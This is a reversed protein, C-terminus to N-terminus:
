GLISGILLGALIFVCVVFLAAVHPDSMDNAFERCETKADAILQRTYTNLKM